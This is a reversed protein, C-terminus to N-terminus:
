FYKLIFKDSFYFFIFFCLFNERPPGRAGARRPQFSQKSWQQIVMVKPNAKLKSLHASIGEYRVGAAAAAASLSAAVAAGVGAGAAAASVYM